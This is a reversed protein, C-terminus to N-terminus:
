KKKKKILNNKIKKIKPHYKRTIFFCSIKYYLFNETILFDFVKNYKIIYIKKNLLYPEILLNKYNSLHIIKKDEININKFNFDKNNYFKSNNKKLNYNIYNYFFFKNIFLKYM